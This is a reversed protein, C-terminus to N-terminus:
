RGKEEKELQFQRDKDQRELELKLKQLELQRDKEEKELQRDKEEKELERDKEEKQQQMKKIELDRQMELKLKAIHVPDELFASASKELINKQVLHRIILNRFEAKRSASKLPLQLHKALASLDDKKLSM